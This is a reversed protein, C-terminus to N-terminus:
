LCSVACLPHPTPETPSSLSAQVLVKRCPKLTVYRYSIVAAICYRRCCCNILRRRINWDSFSRVTHPANVFPDPNRTTADDGSCSSHDRPTTRKITPENTEQKKKMPTFIYSKRVRALYPLFLLALGRATASGDRVYTWM